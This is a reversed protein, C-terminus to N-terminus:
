ITVKQCTTIESRYKNWSVTRKFGQKVNELFNINNMMFLTVIPVSLKASTIMCNIVTINGYDELLVCYISCRLGLEKEHNILLFDLSRM